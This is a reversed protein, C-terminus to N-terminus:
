KMFAYLQNPQQHSTSSYIRCTVMSGCTFHGFVIRHSRATQSTPRPARFRPTWNRLPLFSKVILDIGLADNVKGMDHVLVFCVQLVKLDVLHEFVDNLKNNNIKWTWHDNPRMLQLTVHVLRSFLLISKCHSITKSLEAQM